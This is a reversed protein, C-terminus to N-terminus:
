WGLRKYGAAGFRSDSRSVANNLVCFYWILAGADKLSLVHIVSFSVIPFKEPQEFVKCAWWFVAQVFCASSIALIVCGAFFFCRIVPKSLLCQRWLSCFYWVFLTKPENSQCYSEPRTQQVWQLLFDSPLYICLGHEQLGTRDSDYYNVKMMVYWLIFVMIVPISSSTWSDQVLKLGCVCWPYWVSCALLRGSYPKLALFRPTMFPLSILYFMPTTFWVVKTCAELLESVQRSPDDATHPKLAVSLHPPFKQLIMCDGEYIAQVAEVEEEVEEAMM